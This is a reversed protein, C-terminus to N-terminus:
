WPFSTPAAVTGTAGEAGAISARAVLESPLGLAWEAGAGRAGGPHGEIGGAFAERVSRVDRSHRGLRGIRMRQQRDRQGDGAHIGLNQKGAARGHMIPTICILARTGPPKTAGPSAATSSVTPVALAGGMVMQSFYTDWQMQAAVIRIHPLKGLQPRNNIPRERSETTGADGTPLRRNDGRRNKCNSHPAPRIPNSMRGEPNVLWWEPFHGERTTFLKKTLPM